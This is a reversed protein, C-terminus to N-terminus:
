SHYKLFCDDNMGTHCLWVSCNSCYWPTDRRKKKSLCLSCKGRKKGKESTPKKRPFHHVSLQPLYRGGGRGVRQRSCYDGILELALKERFTKLCMKTENKMEFLIFSNTVSVEFLFYAIYKYFKRCKLHYQYYGRLQDGHDVGGMYQNYKVLAIPCSVEKRSGDKQTRLVTGVEMSDCGSAMVTVLKRDLWASASINDAQM